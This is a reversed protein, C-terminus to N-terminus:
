KKLQESTVINGFRQKNSAIFQQQFDSVSMTTIQTTDILDGPAISHQINNGTNNNGNNITTSTAVHEENVVHPPIEEILEHANSANVICINSGFTNNNNNRKNNANNNSNSNSASSSTVIDKILNSNNLWQLPRLEEDNDGNSTTVVHQPLEITNGNTTNNNNTNTLELPETAVLVINGNSNTNGEFTTIQGNANQQVFVYKSTTPMNGTTTIIKKNSNATANFITAPKPLLNSLNNLQTTRLGNSNSANNSTVVTGATITTPQQSTAAAVSSSPMLQSQQILLAHGDLPISSLVMSNTTNNSATLNNTNNNNHNNLLNSGFITSTTTSTQQVANAATATVSHLRLNSLDHTTLIQTPNDPSM